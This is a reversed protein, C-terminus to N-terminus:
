WRELPGSPSHSVATTDYKITSWSSVTESIFTTVVWTGQSQANTYVVALLVLIMAELGM